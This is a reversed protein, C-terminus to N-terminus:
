RCDVAGAETVIYDMPIDHPQPHITDLRSLEYGVGILLPRPRLVSITRDYYGGGYGLRYGHADFGVLPVILVHPVVLDTNVPEPIGHAGDRMEVGPYWHHFELPAARKVVRPLAPRGGRKHLERMLPRIAFEARFPWYLGFVTEAADPLLGRLGSEIAKNWKRRQAQTSTCRLTLLHSRQERRINTFSQEQSVNVKAKLTDHTTEPKFEPTM